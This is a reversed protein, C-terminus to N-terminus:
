GGRPEHGKALPAKERVIKERKLELRLKSVFLHALFVLWVHRHWGQYTREEYDDMGLYEACEKFSREMRLRMLALKRLDGLSAEAPETCLSYRISGDDLMFSYLWMEKGPFRGESELVRLRNEQTILPRPTGSPLIVKAWSRPESSILDEVTAPENPSSRAQPRRDPVPAKARRLGKSGARPRSNGGPCPFVLRHAPVEAFFVLSEPLSALFCWDSFDQGLGLYKGKFRGSDIMAQLGPWAMQTKTQFALQEPLGCDARKEAWDEEFWQRPIFLKGDLPECGEEGCVGLMVGAQCLLTKGKLGCYQDALGAFLEGTKPFVLSDATLMSGEDSFLSMAESQYGELMMQHNWPSKAVFRQAIKVLPRYERVMSLPEATKRSRFTLLGTVCILFDARRELRDLCRFYPSLHAILRNPLDDPPSGLDAADELFSLWNAPLSTLAWSFDDGQGSLLKEDLGFDRAFDPSIIKLYLQKAIQSGSPQGAPFRSAKLFGLGVWHGEAYASEQSEAEDVAEVVLPERGTMKLWDKKLRELSLSLAQAALHPVKIWPLILLLSGIVGALMSLRTKYEWGIFADRAEFSVLGPCFGIAGSVRPGLTVLYKLRFIEPKLAAQQHHKEVLEGWFPEWKTGDARLLSVPQGLKHLDGEL